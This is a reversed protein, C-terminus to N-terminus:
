RDHDHEQDRQEHAGRNHDHEEDPERDAVDERDDLRGRECRRRRAVDTAVRSRPRTPPVRRDAVDAAVVPFLAM